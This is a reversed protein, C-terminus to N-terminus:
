TLPPNTELLLGSSKLTLLVPRLYFPEVAEEPQREPLTILSGPIQEHEFVRGRKGDLQVSYEQFGLERLKRYLRGYTLSADNPM